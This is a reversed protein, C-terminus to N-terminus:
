GTRYGWRKADKEAAEPTKFFTIGLYLGRCIDPFASYASEITMGPQFTEQPSKVGYLEFTTEGLLMLCTGADKKANQDAKPHVYNNGIDYLQNLLAFIHDNIRHAEEFLFRLLRRFNQREVEEVPGFPHPVTQLLDYCTMEATSRCMMIAAEFFGDRYLMKAQIYFDVPRAKHFYQVRTVEIWRQIKEDINGNYEKSLDRRIDDVFSDYSPKDGRTYAGLAGILEEYEQVIVSEKSKSM